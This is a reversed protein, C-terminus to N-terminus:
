QRFPRFVREQDREITIDGEDAGGSSWEALYHYGGIMGEVGNVNLTRWVLRNKDCSLRMCTRWVFATVVRVKGAAPDTRVRVAYTDQEGFRNRRGVGPEGIQLGGNRAYIQISNDLARLEDLFAQSRRSLKADLQVTDPTSRIDAIAEEVLREARQLHAEWVDRQLSSETFVRRLAEVQIQISYPLKYPDGPPLGIYNVAVGGLDYDIWSVGNKKGSLFFPRIVIM